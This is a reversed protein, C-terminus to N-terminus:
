MLFVHKALHVTYAQQVHVTFPQASMPHEMVQRTGLTPGRHPHLTTVAPTHILQSRGERHARTLIAGQGTIPLSVRLRSSHLRYSSVSPLSSATSLLHSKAEALCQRALSFSSFDRSISFPEGLYGDVQLPSLGKVVQEGLIM